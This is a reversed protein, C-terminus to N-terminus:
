GTLDEPIRGETVLGVADHVLKRLGREAKPAALFRATALIPQDSGTARAEAFAVVTTKVAHALYIGRTSPDDWSLAMLAAELAERGGSQGVVGSAAGVASDVDGARIAAVVDGASAAARTSVAQAPGDLPRSRHVFQLVQFLLRLVDPHNYRTLAVRAAHAFTLTHTISLWTNQVDARADLGLNYRLMRESAALALAGAIRDLPAGADLAAVLAAHAEAPSGDLAAHRLAQPGADDAGTWGSTFGDRPQAWWGALRGEVEHLRRRAGAWAPLVDERTSVVIGYLFARLVPDAVGWGVRDLLDYVKTQYILAHGFDLFHDACLAYGWPEIEARGWGRALAGRLLGEAEDAREAEVLARLRAGAAVPDPGPDIPAPVPRASRRVAAFATLELLQSLPLVAAMGPFWPLSAVLDAAVALVHTSGYEAHVGDYRAAFGAVEEPAVGAHLLRAVDRAVRGMRYQSVGEELSAWTAPIASTLDPPQLDVEIQGDVVRLPYTRVAEEGLVCAGSRVDFKYNHWACTLVGDATLAGQLLPYGEHPCRNDIAVLGDDLDLLLVHDPGHRFLKRAGPRLDARPCVPIWHTSM